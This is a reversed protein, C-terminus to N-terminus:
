IKELIIDGKESLIIQKYFEKLAFYDESSFISKSIHIRSSINIINNRQVINLTFKGGKNPLSIAKKKPLSVIKYNDPIQLNLYYNKYRSYAFDVPYNREKLKFPNNSVRDFIFPNIRIKNGLEENM